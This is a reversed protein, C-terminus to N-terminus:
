SQQALRATKRNLATQFQIQPVMLTAKTYM